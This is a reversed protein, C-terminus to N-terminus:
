QNLIFKEVALAVGDENQSATPYLGEIERLSQPANAM